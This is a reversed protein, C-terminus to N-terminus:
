KTGRRPAPLSLEEDLEDARAFRAPVFVVMEGSLLLGDETDKRWVAGAACSCLEQRVKRANAVGRLLV